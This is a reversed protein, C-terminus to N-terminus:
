VGIKFYTTFFYIGLFRGQRSDLTFFFEQKEIFTNSQLSKQITRTTIEWLKDTKKSEKKQVIKKSIISM